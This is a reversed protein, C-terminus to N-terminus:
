KLWYGIVIGIIGFAWKQLASDNSETCLLYICFVLLIATIAIQVWAKMHDTMQKKLAYLVREVNEGFFRNHTVDPSSEKEITAGKKREKNRKHYLGFYKKIFKNM